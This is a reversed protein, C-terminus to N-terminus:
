LSNKFFVKPTYVHFSAAYGGGGGFGRGRRDDYDDRRGRMPPSRGRRFDGGGMRGGRFCVRMYLSCAVLGDNSDEGGDDFGASTSKAPERVQKRGGNTRFISKQLHEPM